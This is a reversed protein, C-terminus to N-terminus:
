QGFCSNVLEDAIRNNERPVYKYSVSGGIEQELKKIEVVLNRLRSEKIKFIGNLQNVILRSDSFFYLNYVTFQLNTKIWKLAEIIARYEAENNTTQGIRKSIKVFENGAGDTIYVGIAAPGPNGRAGGDSYIRLVNKKTETM